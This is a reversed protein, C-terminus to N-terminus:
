QKLALQTYALNLLAHALELRVPYDVPAGDEGYAKHANDHLGDRLLEAALALGGRRRGSRTRRWTCCGM